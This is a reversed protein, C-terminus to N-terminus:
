RGGRNVQTKANRLQEQLADSVAAGAQEPDSSNVTIQVQQDISSNNTTSSSGAGIALADNPTMAAIEEPSEGSSVMDVAWDPLISMVGAKIGDLIGGWMFGLWDFLASFAGKIMDIWIDFADGLASLAGEFDGQFLAIVATFMAGMIQFFPELLAMLDSIMAKFADVIGHLLPVIDFGFFEMFFDRIVSQGGNFAVILDDVILLLALIGATILVVPSLLVGMIAVLGGTALWWAGFAAAVALVVPTMREIFGMVSIIVEGLYTLGDRILDKNVVLFDVFRDTVGKMAPALGVAVQQGLATIGFQALALSDQFEASAEAQEQTVIGLARSKEVLADVEETTANLLQLTSPDLGLSAIISKQAGASTGLRAFSERLENFLVDATKVNGAADTVSIGLEEFAKRGRGLGRSADGAVKSLGALSATMAEQSSGSMMAAFGLEQTREVAIGTEASFDALADAAQTNSSVFAFLGGAATAIGAAAGALLGISLKLNANFEKQPSLSGVFSFKTVLESVVAM